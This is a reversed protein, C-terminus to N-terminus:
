QIVDFSGAYMGMSCSFGIRGTKTPTFTIVNEGAKLSREIGFDPMVIFSACTYPSQSDIIWKVPKGVHVTFRDPTYGRSTQAMRVIQVGNQVETSVPQPKAAFATLSPLRWGTLRLGNGLNFVALVIVVIGSFAFFKKAWAGKMYATLGGIGLLGPVTGLAFAGMILAGSMFSGSAMALLQMSQTFGCPVFFTLAGMFASNRRSYTKNEQNIGLFRAVSPPLTVSMTELRPSIGTLQIGLYLMVLAVSVTLLGLWTGSLTLVSGVAGLIGGLLAYSVVRGLNFYMHPQFKQMATAEPHKEAHRASLGLVLGGVLAMCTSVGATLGVLLVVTLSATGATGSSLQFAGIFRLVFYLAVTLVIALGLNRYVSSDRSLWTRRGESGVSYGAKKIAQRVADMDPSGDGVCLCAMGTKHDVRVGDVGSVQSLEKEVLLECSRCHMGSIPVVVEEKRAPIMDAM